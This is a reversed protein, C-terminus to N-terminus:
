LGVGLLIRIMQLMVLLGRASIKLSGFCGRLKM